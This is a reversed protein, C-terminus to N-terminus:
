SGLVSCIVFYYVALRASFLRFGPRLFLRILTCFVDRTLFSVLVYFIVNGGNGRLYNQSLRTPQGRM